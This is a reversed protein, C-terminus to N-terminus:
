SGVQEDTGHWVFENLPLHEGCGCCFTGGYFNPNRAYTEAISLAMTTKTGCGKGIKDIEEQTWFKCVSASDPDTDPEFKVWDDGYREKQEDTLDLLTEPRALGTHVYSRRVPRVYGKAREEESLIVYGKQQGNQKLDKHDDTVPSGDALTTKETM